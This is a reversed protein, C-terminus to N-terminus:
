PRLRSLKRYSMRRLIQKSNADQPKLGDLVAKNMTLNNLAIGFHTWVFLAKYFSKLASSQISMIAQQDHDKKPMIGHQRTSVIFILGQSPRCSFLKKMVVLQNEAIFNHLNNNSHHSLVPLDGTDVIILEYHGLSNKTTPNV